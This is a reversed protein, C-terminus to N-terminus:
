ASRQRAPTALKLTEYAIQMEEIAVAGDAARLSPAKLKVPLCGTINFRVDETDRRDSSLILIEGAARLNHNQQVQEFWSWLGFNSTMGRKLSLQGYSVPGVLHIPRQNNGGERITKPELNMELGDCESFSADCVESDGSTEGSLRLNVKFNFATFPRASNSM